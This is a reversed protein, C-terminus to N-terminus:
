AQAGTNAATAATGVAYSDGCRFGAAGVKADFVVARPSEPAILRVTPEPDGTVTLTVLVSVSESMADFIEDVPARTFAETM